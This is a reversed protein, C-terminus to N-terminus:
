QLIASSRPPLQPQRLALYGATEAELEQTLAPLTRLLEAVTGDILRQLAPDLDSPVEDLDLVQPPEGPLALVDVILDRWHVGAASIQTRDAVNCYWGATSGDPRVWHYVNYPRDQWFYGLSVSKPPLDLSLFSAGAPLRYLLVLKGPGQALWECPYEQITGNFREKVEVVIPRSAGALPVEDMGM